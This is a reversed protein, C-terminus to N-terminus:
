AIQVQNLRKATAHYYKALFHYVTLEHTRQDSFFLRNLFMHCLSLLLQQQARRTGMQGVIRQLADRRYGLAVHVSQHTTEENLFAELVLRHERYRLDLSRQRKKDMAFEEYFALKWADLWRQKTVTDLGFAALLQAVGAMASLWRLREGEPGLFLPLLQLICCSDIHFISECSEMTDFGYRELERTYTDYVMRQVQRSALLPMINEGIHKALQPFMRADALLFRIRLHPEPDHYRVFFWKEISKADVFTKVLPAINNSLIDDADREGCYLKLYVWESGPPFDRQINVMAHPATKSARITSGTKFPIIAENAYRLNDQDVVPSQFEHFLSEYLKLNGKKLRDVLVKQAVPNALDLPLENDADALLTHQPLDFDKQLRCAVEEYDINPFEALFSQPINWQARCLILHKYSIRPLFPLSKMTGWDWSIDLANTQHQLDCLFQYATIGFRYNHASSLRPEVVKGLRLSRLVVRGDRVTVLLDSLPLQFDSDVGSRGLLPIEYRRLAPRQLINGMREKPLHVVEALIVDPCAQQEATACAVIKNRLQTDLHSFRAMLPLASPGACALLNFRFDDKNGSTGVSQLLNGFMYGSLPLAHDTSKAAIGEIHDADLMVERVSTGMGRWCRGLIQHAFPLHGDASGIHHSLALGKLLPSNELYQGNKEGYGIGRDQDLAEMLPIEMDGYRAVFRRRFMLLSPPINVRNLPLLQNIEKLLTDVMGKDLRNQHAVVRSDAQIIDKGTWGHLLTGLSAKTASVTARATACGDRIHHMEKLATVLRHNPASAMIKEFLLQFHDGGTVAPELDPLLLQEDVLTNLYSAARDAPIGMVVLLDILRSFSQSEKAHAIIALLVPTKPVRVWRYTRKNGVDQYEIYRFQSELEYLSENSRFRLNYRLSRDKLAQKSLYVTLGMDFRFSCAQHGTLGIETGDGIEGLAIGSFKGFPTARMAMRSVYKYMTTLIGLPIPEHCKLCGDLLSALEESALFIADQLEPHDFLKRFYTDLADVTNHSNLNGLTKLPLRPVRLLFFDLAEMGQEKRTM